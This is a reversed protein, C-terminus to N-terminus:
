AGFRDARSSVHTTRIAGFQKEFVSTIHNVLFLGEKSPLPPRGAAPVDSPSLEPSAWVKDGHKNM